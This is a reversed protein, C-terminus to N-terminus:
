YALTPHKKVFKSANWLRRCKKEIPNRTDKEVFELHDAPVNWCFGHKGKGQCDHWHYEAVGLIPQEFELSIGHMPSFGIVTATLGTIEAQM